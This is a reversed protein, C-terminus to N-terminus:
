SDFDVCFRLFIERLAAFAGLLACLSSCTEPKLGSVYLNDKRAKRSQALRRKTEPKDPNLRIIQLM